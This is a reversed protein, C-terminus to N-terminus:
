SELTAPLSRGALRVCDHPVDSGAQENSLHLFPDLSSVRGTWSQCSTLPLVQAGVLVMLQCIQAIVM